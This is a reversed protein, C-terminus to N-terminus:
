RRSSPARPLGSWSGMLSSSNGSSMPAALLVAGALTVWRPGIRDSLAGWGFGAAGMVLFDLTMATSIGTRTWGTEASMPALFIALSFMAGIAVCTMLAGAAVIVWRYSVNM